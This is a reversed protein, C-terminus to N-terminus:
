ESCQFRKILRFPPWFIKKCLRLLWHGTNEGGCYLNWQWNNVWYRHNWTSATITEYKKDIKREIWRYDLNYKFQCLFSTVYLQIAPHNIHLTIHLQIVSHKAKQESTPATGEDVRHNCEIWVKGRSLKPKTTTYKMLSEIIIPPGGSPMFIDLDNFGAAWNQGQSMQIKQSSPSFFRKFPKFPIHLTHWHSFPGSHIGLIVSITM